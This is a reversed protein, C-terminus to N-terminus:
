RFPPMRCVTRRFIAEAQGRRDNMGSDVRVEAEKPPPLTTKRVIRGPAFHLSAPSVRSCAISRSPGRGRHDGRRRGRRAGPRPPAPEPRPEGSSRRAPEAGCPPTDTTERNPRCASRGRRTRRDAPPSRSARSTGGPDPATAPGRGAGRARVSPPPLSTPHRPCRATRRARESASMAVIADRGRDRAGERRRPPSRSRPDPEVTAKMRRAGDAPRVFGHRADRPSPRSGAM